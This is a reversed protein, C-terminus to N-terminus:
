FSGHIKDQFKEYRKTVPDFREVSKLVERDNKGYGGCAYIKGDLVAACFGYRGQNMTSDLITWEDIQPDYREM